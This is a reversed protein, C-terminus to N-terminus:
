PQGRVTTANGAREDQVREVIRELSPEMRRLLPQPWVGILVIAALVPALLTVERANLDGITRNVPKTVPGHWVRQYAWLLYLAALV